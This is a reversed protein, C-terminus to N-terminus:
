VARREKQNHNSNQQAWDLCSAHETDVRMIEHLIIFRNWKAGDKGAKVRIQLAKRQPPYGLCECLWGSQGCRIQRFISELRM